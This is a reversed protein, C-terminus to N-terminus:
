WKLLDTYINSEDNFWNIHEPRLLLGLGSSVELHIGLVTHRVSDTNNLEFYIVSLKHKSNLVLNGAKSVKVYGQTKIQLFQIM